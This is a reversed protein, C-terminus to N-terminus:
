LDNRQDFMYILIDKPVNDPVEVRNLWDIDAGALLRHVFVKQDKHRFYSGDLPRSVIIMNVERNKIIALAQEDKEATM